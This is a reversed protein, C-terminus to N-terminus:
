CDSVNGSEVRGGKQCFVTPRKLTGPLLAVIAVGRIDSVGFRIASDSAFQRALM